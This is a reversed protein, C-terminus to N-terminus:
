AHNLTTWPSPIQNGRYRYHTVKVSAINILEIGDATPRGRRCDVLVPVPVAHM